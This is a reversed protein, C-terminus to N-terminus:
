RDLEEIFKDIEEETNYYHVSARVVTALGRHALDFRAYNPTSTSTNIGAASLKDKIQEATQGVVGFTVIGGRHAGKDYVTVGSVEELSSRLVAGLGQLRAATAEVSLELAYDVAAGLGLKGAYYTEWNEFRRADDRIKYDWDDAWTASHLDLFPPEIRELARENVYLFGTGRPGRLYKRGTSSLVDCGIAQVDLSIQGASQCADLVFFTQYANCLAGVEEAPNILGGSTPAHTMCLMTAGRALEQELHTLDIQGFEDDDILVIELGHRKQLQLLAIVNSSYEARCTLVRDGPEFPYGYVAMDWARTANEIIAIQNPQAGILTAISQYVAELRDHAEDSAEYGGIAAERHLHEVVTDVVVQPPLASGANNFHIVEAVGPTDHRVQEIPFAQDFFTTM